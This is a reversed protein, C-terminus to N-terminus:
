SFYFSLTEVCSKCINDVIDVSVEWAYAEKKLRRPHCELAQPLHATEIQEEQIPWTRLTNRMKTERHWHIINTKIDSKKTCLARTDQGLLPKRNRSINHTNYTGIWWTCEFAMMPRGDLCGEGWKMQMVAQSKRHNKNDKKTFTGSPRCSCSETIIWATMSVWCCFFDDPHYQPLMGHNVFRTPISRWVPPSRPDNPSVDPPNFSSITHHLITSEKWIMNKRNSKFCATWFVLAASIIPHINSQLLERQQHYKKKGSWICPHPTEVNDVLFRRSAM